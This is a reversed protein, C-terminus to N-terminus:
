GESSFTTALEKKIRREQQGNAVIIQGQDNMPINPHQRRHEAVQSPAVGMSDCLIAKDYDKNLTGKPEAAFDRKMTSRCTVCVPARNCERMSRLVTEEYGCGCKFSYLPM